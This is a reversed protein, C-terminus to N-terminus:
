PKPIHLTKSIMASGNVLYLISLPHWHVTAISVVGLPLRDGVRGTYFCGGLVLILLLSSPIPTGEFYRVKGTEDSLQAATINFRALRSIGCGVFFMLILADLGGRMWGGYAVVVPAVGFSVIDALSDLERGFESTQSRKRAIRGDAIDFILALPLLGLALNVRWPEPTLLYSMMTLISATGAFANALTFLDALRYGRLISFHGLQRRQEQENVMVSAESQFSM